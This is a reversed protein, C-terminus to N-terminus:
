FLCPGSARSLLPDVFANFPGFICILVEPTRCCDGSGTCLSRSLAKQMWM